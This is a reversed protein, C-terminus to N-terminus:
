GIKRNGGRANAVRLTMRGLDKMLTIHVSDIILAVLRRMAYRLLLSGTVRSKGSTERRRKHVGARNVGADAEDRM